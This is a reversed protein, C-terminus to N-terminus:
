IGKKWDYDDKYDDDKTRSKKLGLRLMPQTRRERTKERRFVKLECEHRPRLVVVVVLVILLALVRAVIPRGRLERNGEEM